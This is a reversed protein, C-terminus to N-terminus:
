HVRRCCQRNQDIRFQVLLWAEQPDTIKVVDDHRGVWVWPRNRRRQVYVQGDVVVYSVFM